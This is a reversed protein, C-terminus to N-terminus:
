SSFRFSFIEGDALDFHLRCPFRLSDLEMVAATEDGQFERRCLTEGTEDTLTVRLAGRYNLILRNGDCRLLRTMAHGSGKLSVFGDTRWVFRRLRRSPGDYYGETAYAYMERDNPFLLGHAMYNSRNGDRESPADRPILPLDMRRWSEGGDHSFMLIPETQGEKGEGQPMYVTPFGLMIHPAREYPIVANTYLQIKREDQYKLYVPDSWHIFDESFCVRVDRCVGGNWCEEDERGVIGHTDRIFAAYRKRCSDYVALNQSDFRGHTIIPEDTLVTWQIGDPSVGPFMGLESNGRVTGRLLSRYRSEPPAGPDIFPAVSDQWFIGAPLRGKFKETPPILEWDGGIIINNASSNEFEFMHLEPKEWHIGDASVAMCNPANKRDLMEHRSNNIGRYYMRYGGDAARMASFYNITYEWPKDDTIVVNEPRPRHQIFTLGSSIEELLRADLFLELRSGIDITM